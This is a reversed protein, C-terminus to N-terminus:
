KIILNITHKIFIILCDIIFGVMFGVMGGYFLKLGRTLLSDLIEWLYKYSLYMGIIIFLYAFIM